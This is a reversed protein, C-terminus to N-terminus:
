SVREVFAAVEAAFRAPDEWRPTHQIGAWVSLEAHPLRALLEEQAARDVIPDADGWVLLVPAEIRGLDDRDDHDLLGGFVGQWARAPVRSTEAVAMELISPHVNPSSTDVILQHVFGPDIPDTLETLSVVLEELGPHGRLTLPSAELAAGAVREPEAIALHRVALCSGSHGVLVAQQIELADAVALVDCALDEVSYGTGPDDSEGHGRPSIGVTRISGPLHEIVPEYSRWSDTPGPVLVLPAGHEDGHLACSLEVGSAVEIRLERVM